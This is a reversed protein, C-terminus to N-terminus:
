GECNHFLILAHFVLIAAHNSLYSVMYGQTEDIEIQEFRNPKDLARMMGICYFKMLCKPVKAWLSTHNNQREYGRITGFVLGIFMKMEIM